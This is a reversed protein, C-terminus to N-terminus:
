SRPTGGAASVRQLGTAINTRRSSSRTTRRGPPAARVAVTSAPLRSRRGAPSRSRRSRRATTWSASGSATPRRVARAPHRDCDGGARARRARPRLAADRQQRRLRRAHRRPHPGPRSRHRQDDAGRSRVGHHDHADRPAPGPADRAVDRCRRGSRRHRAGARRFALRRWLPQPPAAVITTTPASHPAAAVTEIEARLDGVAQWRRKPNKELCRKLLEPLRPNLNPPLAGLDPERVLVSALLAAATDGQFPQRGTLMEYLVSGFSFVDSRPDAPLGQAQEPSMYAATGLIVGAQTAMMSLTPSSFPSPDGQGAYPSGDGIGAVPDMAKALGFDLVKVVGDPTIKVNAPKLDRHIIGKEHAAELAEAIQKAIPLAEDLPIPGRAIRQALDDGEVLEMM